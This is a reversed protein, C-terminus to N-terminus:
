DSDHDSDDDDENEGESDNGSYTDGKWEKQGDQNNMSKTKHSTPVPDIQVDASTDNRDCYWSWRDWISKEPNKFAPRLNWFYGVKLTPVNASIIQAAALMSSQIEAERACLEAFRQPIKVDSSDNKSTTPSSFSNSSRTPRLPLKISLFCDLTELRDFRSLASLFNDFTNDSNWADMDGAEEFDEESGDCSLRFSWFSSGQAQHCFLHFCAKISRRNPQYPTIYLRTVSPAQDAITTLTENGNVSNYTKVYLSKPGKVANSLNCSDLQQPESSLRHQSHPSSLKLHQINVATSLFLDPIGISCDQCNMEFAFSKVQPLYGSCSDILTQPFVYDRHTYHQCLPLRIIILEELHDLSRLLAVLTFWIPVIAHADTVLPKSVNQRPVDLHLRRVATKVFNPAKITYDLM